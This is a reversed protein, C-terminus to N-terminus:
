RCYNPLKPVVQRNLVTIFQSIVNDLGLSSSYTNSFLIKNLLLDRFEIKAGYSTGTLYVMYKTDINIAKHLSEVYVANLRYTPNKAFNINMENVLKLAPTQLLGPGSVAILCKSFAFSQTLVLILILNNIRM